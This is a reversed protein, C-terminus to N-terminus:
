EHPKSRFNVNLCLGLRRYVTRVLINIEVGRERAQPKKRDLSTPPPLISKVALSTTITPRTPPRPVDFPQINSKFLDPRQNRM